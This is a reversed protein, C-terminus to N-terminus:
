GLCIPIRVGLELLSARLERLTALAETKRRVAADM